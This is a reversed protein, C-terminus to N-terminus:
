RENSCDLPRQFSSTARMSTIREYRIEAIVEFVGLAIVVTVVPSLPLKTGSVTSLGLRM